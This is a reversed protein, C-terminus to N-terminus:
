IEINTDEIMNIVVQFELAMAKNVEFINDHLSKLKM